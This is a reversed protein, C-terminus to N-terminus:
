RVVVLKVDEVEARAAHEFGAVHVPVDGGDGEVRDSAGDVRGISENMDRQSGLESRLAVHVPPRRFHPWRGEDNPGARHM